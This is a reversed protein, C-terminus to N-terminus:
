PQQLGKMWNFVVHVRSLSESVASKLVLLRKGDPSVAYSRGPTDIFDTEFARRPKEWAVSPQTTTRTSMWTRGYRYFLEGSGSWFPELGGETSVQRRIDGDPYSRIWVEPRGRENFTYAVWRGDPSFSEGWEDTKGPLWDEQGRGPLVATELDDRSTFLVPRGGSPQWSEAFVLRDTAFLVEPPNNGHVGRMRVRWTGYWTQWSSFAIREGDSTWLPWGSQESDVIQRETREALDYILIYDKVDAVHLAVRRGDPSLDFFGYTRPTLDLAESTGLRDVWTLRGVSRDGGPLYALLGNDSVTAQVVGFLSDMSVGSAVLVPDGSVERRELDFRVAFLNGARAFMLFGPHVYRGGYGHQVLLTSQDTLLSRAHINSSDWSIGGRAASWLAWRSGPLMGDITFGISVERVEGSQLQVQRVRSAQKDGVHITDGDIWAAWKPVTVNCLTVPAGGSLPAIKVKDETLFGISRGDPSVFPHIAGESGPVVRSDRADLERVFVSSKGNSSGVYALWTGDRALAVATRDFWPASGPSTESGRGLEITLDLRPQNPSTSSKARRWVLTGGVAAAILLSAVLTRTRRVWRRSVEVPQLHERGRNWWADLEPKFAFVSGLKDHPLRHVPLGEKKEWRQVTSVDRKLYAAIEKWSDLRDDTTSVPSADRPAPFVDGM